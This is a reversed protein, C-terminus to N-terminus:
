KGKKAEYKAAADLANGWGELSTLSGLADKAQQRAAELDSEEGADCTDVRQGLAYINGLAVGTYAMDTVAGANGSIDALDKGAKVLADKNDEVYKNIIEALQLCDTTTGVATKLAETQTYLETPKLSPAMTSLTKDCAFSGVACASLTLTTILMKITKM